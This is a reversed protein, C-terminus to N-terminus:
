KEHSPPTNDYMKWAAHRRALDREAQVAQVTKVLYDVLEQALGSGAKVEAM